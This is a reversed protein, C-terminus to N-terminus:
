NGVSTTRRRPRVCGGVGAAKHPFSPPKGTESLMHRQIRAPMSAHGLKAIRFEGLLPDHRQRPV